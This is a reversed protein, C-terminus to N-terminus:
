KRKVPAKAPAKRTIENIATTVQGDAPDLAKAAQWYPLSAAKDGKQYYYYGLYKNAEVIGDKYKTPDTALELYKEYYPKASGQKSDPDLNANARARMLYGPIYDPKATTIVGYLSDAQTYQKNFEYARALYVKNTLADPNKKAIISYMQIAKPYNKSALYAQALDNQLEEAKAPDNKIAKEITAIGEQTRGAKALMKGYYVYDETILKDAPVLKMYADMAALAEENKGTEYLSYAQLRNMTVNKSDRQLITQVETLAEPYKKTLFLFSAYKAQTSPTNEAMDRYKQFTSLADDYKGVFYYMEGLERYAPAFNPDLITAKQFADRAGNYNRSRVNLQGKRYYATVNNPDALIAREYNNMAEGGGNEQKLYIDGLLNMIRPDDKKNLKNALTLYEVAKGNDKTPSEAYAQGIQTLVEKDKSKTAKVAQEFQIQAEANKGQALYARGSAIQAQAGKSATASQTFFYAASDPKEMMQYLRGLEFASEPTQGQGLQRRADSYRELEIAKQAGAVNQAVAATTSVSLAVLLSLKWPKFKM